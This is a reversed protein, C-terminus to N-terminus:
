KWPFLLVFVAAIFGAVLSYETLTRSFLRGRLYNHTIGLSVYLFAMIFLANNWVSLPYFSLALAFEMMLVTLLATLGWVRRTVRTELEISWLSMLILPAHVLGVALTNLYFPWKLSFVTNTFLLSTLLTFLLGIAHAAHLLQITRGKAVSYINSTLFLAYMGVGYMALIFVRSLLGEPLLFYFLGVAAAYLSPFPVITLWEHRQLDDSLAWGSVLFSLLTMVLVALYRFDLPVYQVILVGLTLLSSAIVFKERRRM